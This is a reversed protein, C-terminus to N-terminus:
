NDNVWEVLRKNFLESEEFHASHGSKEFLSITLNPPKEFNETWLTYPVLYDSIGLAVFIPINVKVNSDFMNYNMFMVGVVNGFNNFTAGNYYETIDFEADYLRQPGQAAINRIARESNTENTSKTLQRQKQKAEYLEKREESATEWYEKRANNFTESGFTNPTGIMVLHSVHEPFKRTYEYAVAGLISHGMVVIKNLGLITRMSDIDELLSDLSYVEPIIPRYEQALERIDIFHLRFHDRLNQSFSRPNFVVDGIVMCPIGKGEVVYRLKTGGITVSGSTDNLQVSNEKKNKVSNTCSSFAFLCIWLILYLNKVIKMNFLKNIDNSFRHVDHM